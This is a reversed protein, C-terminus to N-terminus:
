ASYSATDRVWYDVSTEFLEACQLVLSISPQKHGAELMSIYAQTISALEGALNTQSWGRQERQYKLKTGFLGAIEESSSINRIPMIQTEISISDRLLYDVSVGLLEAAKVTFVLSPERRGSEINSIHSQKAIGLMRALAVQSLNHQKRLYTLKKGLLQPM